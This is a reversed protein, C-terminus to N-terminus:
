EDDSRRTRADFFLLVALVVFAFVIVPWMVSLITLWDNLLGIFNDIM